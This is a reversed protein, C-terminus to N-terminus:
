RRLQPRGPVLLQPQLMPQQLVPRRQAEEKAIRMRRSTCIDVAVIKTQLMAGIADCEGNEDTTDSEFALYGDEGLRALWAELEQAMNTDKNTNRLPRLVQGGHHTVILWLGEFTSEDFKTTTGNDSM